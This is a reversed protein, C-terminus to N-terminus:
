LKKIGYRLDQELVPLADKLPTVPTLDDKKEFLLQKFQIM